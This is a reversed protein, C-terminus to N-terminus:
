ITHQSANGLEEETTHLTVKRHDLRFFLLIVLFRALEKCALSLSLLRIRLFLIGLVDGIEDIGM